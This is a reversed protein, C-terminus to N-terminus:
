SLSNMRFERFFPFLEPVSNFTDLHPNRLGQVRYHSKEGKEHGDERMKEVSENNKLADKIL